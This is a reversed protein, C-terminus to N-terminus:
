VMDLVLLESAGVLQGKAGDIDVKFAVTQNGSTDALPGGSLKYGVIYTNPKFHMKMVEVKRFQIQYCRKQNPSTVRVDINGIVTYM